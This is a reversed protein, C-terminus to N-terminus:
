RDKPVPLDFVYPQAGVITKASPLAVSQPPPIAPKAFLVSWPPTCRGAPISMMTQVGDVNYQIVQRLSLVANVKPLVTKALEAGVM